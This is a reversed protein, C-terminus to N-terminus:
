LREYDAALSENHALSAVHKRFEKAPCLNLSQKVNVTKPLGAGCPLLRWTPLPM